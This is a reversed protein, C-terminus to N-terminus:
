KLHPYSKLALEDGPYLNHLEPMLKQLFTKRTVQHGDADKSIVTQPSFLLGRADSNSLTHHLSDINDKEDFTV